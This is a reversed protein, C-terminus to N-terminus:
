PPDLKAAPALAALDALWAQARDAGAAGIPEFRALLRQAIAYDDDLFRVGRHETDWAAWRLVGYLLGGAARRAEARVALPTAPDLAEPLPAVGRALLPAAADIV